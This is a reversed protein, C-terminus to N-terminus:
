ELDCGCLTGVTNTGLKMFTNIETSQITNLFLSATRRSVYKNLML